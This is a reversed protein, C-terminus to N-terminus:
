SSGPLIVTLFFMMEKALRFGEFVRSPWLCLGATMMMYIPQQLKGTYICEPTGRTNTIAQTWENIDSERRHVTITSKLPLLTQRINRHTSQKDEQVGVTTSRTTIQLTKFTRWSWPITQVTLSQGWETNRLTYSGILVGQNLDQSGSVVSLEQVDLFGVLFTRYLCDQQEALTQLTNLDHPLKQTKSASKQWKRELFVLLVQLIIDPCVGTSVEPSNEQFNQLNINCCNTEHHINSTSGRLCCRSLNQSSNWVWKNLKSGNIVWVRETSIITQRAGTFTNPKKQTRYQAAQTQTVSLGAPRLSHTILQNVTIRPSQVLGPLTPLAFVAGHEDLDESGPTEWMETLTQKIGRRSRNGTEETLVSDEDEGETNSLYELYLLISTALAISRSIFPSISLQRVAIPLGYFSMSGSRPQTISPM